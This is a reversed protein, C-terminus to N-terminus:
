TGTVIRHDHAHQVARAVQEILRAAQQPSLSGTQLVEDLSGGSVYEMTFYMCNGVQGFDYIPVIHPHTLRAVTRAEADFRARATPSASRDTLIMKLAVWRGLNLQRAQYVVGFGGRGLEKIIEYKGISQLNTM